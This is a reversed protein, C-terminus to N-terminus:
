NMDLEALLEELADQLINERDELLQQIMESPYNQETFPALLTQVKNQDSYIDSLQDLLSESIGQPLVIKQKQHVRDITTIWIFQNSMKYVEQQLYDLLEHNNLKTEVEEFLSDCIDGLTVSLLIPSEIPEFTLLIMDCIYRSIDDLHHITELSIHIEEWLVSAVPLWEYNLLTQYSSVFVCYKAYGEKKNHGQPAGSYVILPSESLVQPKHIHGLAWYDYNKAKLDSISFPAYIYQDSGKGLSGHYMGIHFDVNQLRNPFQDVMTHPIHSHNYSFGSVAVKEHLATSLVITDVKEETFITVNDPLTMWFRQRTYYDHNGFTLVVSIGHADLRYLQEIFASQVHLNIEERHFTDGSILIFDVHLAIAQDVINSWVKMNAHLLYEMFTDPVGSVGEFSRDIHMDSVHIFKM